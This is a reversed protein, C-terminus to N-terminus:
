AVTERSASARGVPAAVLRWAQARGLRRIVFNRASAALPNRIHGIRGFLRSRDQVARVRAQRRRLYDALAEDVDAHQRLCHALAVADEIAMAGGQGLNPTMAHAADGILLVRGQRWPHAILEEIDGRFLQDPRTLQDLVAPFWGGFGAFASRFLALREGPRDADGRPTTLTTYCYLQDRNVPSLGVRRGRGWMELIGAFGAPREVVMRFSTYGAYTLAADGFTLERVRSRIGDAGVVLDFRKEAGDSFRVDMGGGNAALRDVTTGLRIPVGDAAALLADHLDARHISIASARYLRAVDTLDFRTIPRDDSDVIDWRDCAVGRAAVEADAGVARLGLVANIGLGIGAGVPAWAPAREVLEADVAARALAAALTLGAIGGGVILVRTARGSM